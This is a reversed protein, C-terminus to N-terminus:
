GHQAIEEPVEINTDTTRVTGSLLDQMLGQKFRQLRQLYDRENRLAESHQDIIEVIQAQEEESPLHVPVERLDELNIGQVAQGITNREFYNNPTETEFFYRIFRPNAETVRIRATDQTINGGDLREPVFAMRGVTGRITFLLDGERLEARKFDEHIEQSTHLIDGQKVEGDHIDKVKVVPVGDPQHDGPKLIGYVIPADEPVLQSLPVINWSEPIEGYKTERYSESSGDSNRLEGDEDLGYRFLDQMLGKRVRTAQETIEETTQIAQDVNQLVTAIKRQEFKPPVPLPYQELVNTQISEVTTGTKKCSGRIDESLGSISQFFYEANVQERDPDLAKLDQNITTQNDVIAVPLTHRLVGSRVVMLTTGPPYIKSTSAEAGKKTMKDETDNLRPSDFDKPSTWLIEGGEWYEDNSKKPTSGGGIECLDILSKEAWEATEKNGQERSDAFDDLKAEESM